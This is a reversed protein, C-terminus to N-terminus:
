VGISVSETDPILDQHRRENQFFFMAHGTFYVRTCDKFM